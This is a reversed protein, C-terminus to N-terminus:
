QSKEWFFRQTVLQCRFLPTQQLKTGIWVPRNNFWRAPKTCTKRPAWCDRNDQRDRPFFIRTDFLPSPVFRVHKGLSSGYAHMCIDILWRNCEGSAALFVDPLFFHKKKKKKWWKCQGNLHFNIKTRFTRKRKGAVFTRPRPSKKLQFVYTCWARNRRFSSDSKGRNPSIADPSVTPILSHNLSRRESPKNNSNKNTKSIFIKKAHDVVKDILFIQQLIIVSM